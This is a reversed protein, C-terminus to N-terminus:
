LDIKDFEKQSKKLALFTLLAFILIGLALVILKETLFQPDSTDLKDKVFPVLPSVELVTAIMLMVFFVVSGLVFSIGVKDPNKYYKTFFVFNFVGVMIFGVGILAINADMGAENAPMNLANRLVIFPVSIIFQLIELICAMGIRANVVDRKRVPMSMMYYIDRNERGSLCTFFIALTMYFYTVYYPYNPILLMAPM